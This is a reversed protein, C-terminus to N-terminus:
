LPKKVFCFYLIFTSKLKIKIEIKYFIRSIDKIKLSFGPGFLISYKVTVDIICKVMFYDYTILYVITEYFHEDLWKFEYFMKQDILGM